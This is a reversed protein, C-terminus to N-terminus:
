TRSQPTPRDEDSSKTHSGSGDRRTSSSSGRVTAQQGKVAESNRARTVASALTLDPELQLKKALNADQLSVVLRDRIMQERLNGYECHEVLNYLSTVSSDVSEVPQQMRSNFCVREYIPNRRHVFHREFRDKVVNYTSGDKAPLKFSTLIDEAEVGMTYVLTSVQM